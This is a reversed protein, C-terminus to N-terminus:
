IGRRGMAATLLQKNKKYMEAVLGYELQTDALRLMEEELEVSNGTPSVMAEKDQYRDAENAGRMSSIPRAVAEPRQVSGGSRSGYFDVLSSFDQNKLRQSMYNPTDANAVNESILRQRQNLWSMRDGLAGMIPLSALDM